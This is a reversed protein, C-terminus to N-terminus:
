VPQLVGSIHGVMLIFRTGAWVLSSIEPHHQIAVDVIKACAEVSKLIRRMREGVNIERGHRDTYYWKRNELAKQASKIEEITAHIGAINPEPSSTSPTPKPTPPSLEQPTSSVHLPLSGGRLVAHTSSQSVRLNQSNIRPNELATTQQQRSQLVQEPMAPSAASGHINYANTPALGTPALSSSGHRSPFSVASGSETNTLPSSTGSAQGESHSSSSRGHDRLLSKVWRVPRSEKKGGAM